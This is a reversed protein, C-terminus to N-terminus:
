DLYHRKGNLIMTITSRKVGYQNALKQHTIRESKHLALIEEVQVRTLKHQGNREGKAPNSRGKKVTDRNNDTHTGLYLHAPNCCSPNDGDPCNHCVLSKGPNIGTALEFAVRHARLMKGDDSIIKGYGNKTGATWLWCDNPNDTKNIKANFRLIFKPSYKPTM